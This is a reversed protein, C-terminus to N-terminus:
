VMAIHSETMLARDSKHVLDGSGLWIITLTLPTSTRMASQGTTEVIVAAHPRCLPFGRHSCSLCLQGSCVCGEQRLRTM